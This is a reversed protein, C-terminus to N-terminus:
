DQAFEATRASKIESAMRRTRFLKRLMPIGEVFFYDRSTRFEDLVLSVYHKAVLRELGPGDCVRYSEPLFEFGSRGCEMAWLTQEINPLCRELDIVGTGLLWELRALDIKQKSVSAIGCNVCSPLDVGTRKKLEERNVAYSTARDRSFRHLETEESLEKPDAFFLVDSDLMILRSSQCLACFDVIKMIHPIRKRLELLRPYCTFQQYVVADAEDRSIIEATPFWNRISAIAECNLTGDDHIVARDVRGSMAYYSALTWCAMALDRRSTLMHIEASAPGSARESHKYNPFPRIFKNFLYQPGFRVTAKIDHPAVRM